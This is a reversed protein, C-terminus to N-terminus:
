KGGEEGPVKIMEVQFDSTNPAKGNKMKVWFSEENEEGCIANLLM